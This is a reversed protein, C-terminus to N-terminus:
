LSVLTPAGPISECIDGQKVTYYRACEPEALAGMSLDSDAGALFQVVVHTLRMLTM